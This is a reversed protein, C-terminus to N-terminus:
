GFLEISENSWITKDFLNGPYETLIQIFLIIPFKIYIKNLLM